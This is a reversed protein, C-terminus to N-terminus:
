DVVEITVVNNIFKDQLLYASFGYVGLADIMYKLIASYDNYGIVSYGNLDRFKDVLEWFIGIRITKKAFKRFKDIVVAGNRLVIKLTTNLIENIFNYNDDNVQKLEDWTFKEKSQGSRQKIIDQTAKVDTPDAYTKTYYQVLQKRSRVATLGLNKIDNYLLSVALDSYEKLTKAYDLTTFVDKKNEVLSTFDGANQLYDIVIKRKEVMIQQTNITNNNIAKELKRMKSLNVNTLDQLFKLNYKYEKTFQERQTTLTKEVNYYHKIASHFTNFQKLIDNETVKEGSVQSALRTLTSMEKKSYRHYNLRYNSSSNKLLELKKLTANNM